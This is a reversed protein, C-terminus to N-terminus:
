PTEGEPTATTVKYLSLFQPTYAIAKFAEALTTGNRMNEALEEITEEDSEWETRGMAFRFYERSLCWEMRGSDVLIDAVEHPGDFSILQGDFVTTGSTDIEPFQDETRIFYWFNGHENKQTSYLHEKEWYQGNSSFHGFAHGFGNILTSHCGACTTGPVETLAEVKERVTM